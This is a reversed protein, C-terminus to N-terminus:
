KELEFDIVGASVMGTRASIMTEDIREISYSPRTEESFILASVDPIYKMRQLFAGDLGLQCERQRELVGGDACM